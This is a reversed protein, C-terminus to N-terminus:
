MSEYVDSLKMMNQMYKIVKSQEEENMERIPARLSDIKELIANSANTSLDAKYDKDIFFKIDGALIYDRYTDIVFKKYAKYIKKPSLFVIQPLAMKFTSIDSNDPFVRSTDEIFEKFQKNFIDLIESKNM